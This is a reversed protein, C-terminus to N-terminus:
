PAVEAAVPAPGGDAFARSLRAAALISLFVAAAPALAPFLAEHLHPVGEAIMAGWEPAPPQLGLGLFGLASVTAVGSGFGLVALPLVQRMVAPLVHVGLIWHRPFGALRAAEVHTELLEGTAVAEALRAFQPWQTMQLGILVPWVGGGFLGSLLLALLLGPFALMMDAARLIVAGLVPGGAAAVVGLLTGLVASIAVAAGALGLSAPAATMLRAAVDRGLADTGFPHALSPGALAGLLDQEIPDYPVLWPAVAVAVLLLVAIVIRCRSRRTM